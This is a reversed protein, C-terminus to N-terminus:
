KKVITLTRNCRRFIIKSWFIIHLEPKKIWVMNARLKDQEMGSITFGTPLTYSGARVLYYSLYIKKAVPV